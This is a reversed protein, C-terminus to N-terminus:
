SANSQIHITELTQHNQDNRLHRINNNQRGVLLLLKRAITLYHFAM